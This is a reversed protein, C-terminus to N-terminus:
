RPRLSLNRVDAALRGDSPDLKVAAEGAIVALNFAQIKSAVEMMKIFLERRPKKETAIAGLARESIWYTPETLNLKAAAEAARVALLADLPKLAWNLLASLYREIDARGGFMKLTDKSPSKDEALFSASSKFYSELAKMNAPDLRLGSLWCQM